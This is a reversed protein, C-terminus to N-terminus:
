TPQVIKKLLQKKILLLIFIFNTNEWWKIHIIKMEIFPDSDEEWEQFTHWIKKM